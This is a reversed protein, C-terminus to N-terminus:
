KKQIKKLAETAEKRVGEDKGKTAEVLVPIAEAAAPGIQGRL